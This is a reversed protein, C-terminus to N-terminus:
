FLTQQQKKFDPKPPPVLEVGIIEWDGDGHLYEFEQAEMESGIREADDDDLAEVEAFHYHTEKAIVFYRAM